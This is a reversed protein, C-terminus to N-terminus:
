LWAQRSGDGPHRQTRIFRDNMSNSIQFFTAVASSTLVERECTQTTTKRRRPILYVRKLDNGAKM